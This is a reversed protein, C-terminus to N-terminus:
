AARDGNKPVRVLLSGPDVTVELVRSPPLLEGDVEQRVMRRTRIVIHRAQFRRVTDTSRGRRAALRAAVPLWGPFGRPALVVLDLLGDDPVADPLLRIGGRLTGTNGVVLARVRDHVRRVGDLEVTVQIGLDPLHRLLSVAYASWGAHAKLWPPADAVMSADLGIGAMGVMVGERTRGVDVPRDVGSAMVELAAPADAPIGLNAAVLNGTGAAMICMPVGTGALGAAVSSVTGDGGCVVVLQAGDQVAREALGRGPEDKSTSLWTPEPWGAAHAANYLAERLSGPGDTDTKVAHAIVTMRTM